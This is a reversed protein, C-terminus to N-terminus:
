EFAPIVAANQVQVRPPIEAYSLVALDTFTNEFFRRFALRLQPACLVVPQQGAALMQQIVRSLSEMVHRALRPEVVLAVESASQRVGQALMAELKPDITIARVSGNEGQYPKTLQAGLARRAHESLEDPNKTITAYDGVKELIGALNRISIGEALLNQLIRQVQGVNLQGPILENVVAPHTQKLNDLLTQVDQRTIVEHLHRRVTESLHTILVTPADVVTFGAVEANKREPEAVWTAPLNFVPEATPIGKLTTKSNTANMALWQGPNLKGSAIPNGKLVFRYENNGLQLNDRLKIPPILVGMDGAFQRRVGTVRELLDGGKKGDAMPVLGYGLEIQMTDLALLSEIKEAAKADTAPAATAPNKPDIVKGRGAGAGAHEQPTGHKHVSHSLLGILVAMTLFPITPLGPVIALIGLMVALITLAKPYM